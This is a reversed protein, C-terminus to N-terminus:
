RGLYTFPEDADLVLKRLHGTISASKGPAFPWDAQPQNNFAITQGVTAYFRITPTKHAQLRTV